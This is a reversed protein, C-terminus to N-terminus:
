PLVNSFITNPRVWTRREVLVNECDTQHKEVLPQVFHDRINVFVNQLREHHNPNRLLHAFRDEISEVNADDDKSNKTILIIRILLVLLLIYALYFTYAMFEM